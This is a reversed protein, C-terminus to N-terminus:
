GLGCAPCPEPMSSPGLPVGGLDPLQGPEAAAAGRPPDLVPEDPPSEGTASLSPAGDGPAIADGSTDSARDRPAVRETAPEVLINQDTRAPAPEDDGGGCGAVIPVTVVLLQLIHSPIKM